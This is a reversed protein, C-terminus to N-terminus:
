HWGWFHGKIKKCIKIYTVHSFKILILQFNKLSRSLFFFSIINITFFFGYCYCYPGGNFATSKLLLSFSVICYCLTKRQFSVVKIFSFFGFLSLLTKRKSPFFLPFCVFCYCFHRCSSIGKYCDSLTKQQFHFVKIVVLIQITKVMVFITTIFCDLSNVNGDQCCCFGPKYINCVDRFQM